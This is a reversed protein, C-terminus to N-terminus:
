PRSNKCTALANSRTTIQEEHGPKGAEYSDRLQRGLDKIEPTEDENRVKDLAAALVNMVARRYSICQDLNYIADEVLKKRVELDKEAQEVRKGAEYIDKEVQEIDKTIKNKEDDNSARSRDDELKRKKDKLDEVNRKATEVANKAQRTIDQSGCTVPGRGGDCWEHVHSGESTCNSRLDSYPISECGKRANAAAVADKFDSLKDASAVSGCLAITVVIVIMKGNSM